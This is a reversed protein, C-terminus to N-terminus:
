QAPRELAMPLSAMAAVGSPLSSDPPDACPDFGLDESEYVWAYLPVDLLVPDGANQVFALGAPTLTITQTKNNGNEVVALRETTIFQECRELGSGLDCCSQLHVQTGLSVQGQGPPRTLSLGLTASPAGQKLVSSGNAISLVVSNPLAPSLVLGESGVSRDGIRAFLSVPGPQRGVFLPVETEEDGFLTFSTQKGDSAPDLVGLSTSLTITAPVTTPGELRVSIPVESVDDALHPGSPAAIAVTQSLPEVVVSAETADDNETLRASIFATGQTAGPAWRLPAEDRVQLTAQEAAEGPKRPSLTGQTTSVVVEHTKSADGEVRITLTYSSGDAVVEQPVDLTVTANSLPVPTVSVLAEDSEDNVTLTANLHATVNADKGVFWNLRKSSGGAVQLSAARQDPGTGPSLTGNDTTVMVSHPVTSPSDVHVEIQRPKGDAPVDTPAVLSVLSTVAHLTFTASGRIGRPGEVVIEGDESVSSKIAESYIPFELAQQGQTRLKRTKADTGTAGRTLSGLTTTVTLESGFGTHDPVNITVTRQDAGEPFAFFTGEEDVSVALHNETLDEVCGAAVLLACALLIRSTHTM